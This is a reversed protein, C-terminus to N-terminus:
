PIQRLLRNISHLARENSSDSVSRARPFFQVLGSAAQRLAKLSVRQSKANFRSLLASVALAGQLQGARDFVPVAAAGIEPDREGKSVYSRRQRITDYIRGAEGGFALLFRGAAGRDLPLRIGEDLHHRVPRPSNVRYLCVRENGDRVYYSGTESTVEVLNVLRSRVQEELSFSRQYQAGLRWLESGLVYLGEPNRHLFKFQELSGILRLITSKYLGTRRSIEALSLDRDAEGFATLISLARDVADVGQRAM